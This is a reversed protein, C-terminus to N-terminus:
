NFKLKEMLLNLNNMLIDMMIADNLEPENDNTGIHNHIIGENNIEDVENDSQNETINPNDMSVGDNLMENDNTGIHNHIIGKNNLEGVDNDSHNEIEDPNIMLNEDNLKKNKYKLNAKRQASTTKYKKILKINLCNPELQIYENLKIVVDSINNSPYNLLLQITADNFKFIDNLEVDHKSRLTAIRNYLPQTTYDFYFYEPHSSSYVKFIKTKSIDGYKPM